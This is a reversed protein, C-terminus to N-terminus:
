DESLEEFLELFRQVIVPKTFGSELKSRGEGVCNAQLCTDQLMRQTAEACAKVDDIPFLLGNKGDEILWAPGESAAAVIPVGYAWAELVVNGLPEQRSPFVCLDATKFLAATDRRWGLFHVREAVELSLALAELEERLGGEGAILLHASPIEPLARILVDQAKNVHLRGLTLLVQDEETLGFEVRCDSVDGLADPLEGFNSILRMREVPWGLGNLHEIVSPTNGVLFDCSKYYKLPYYGGLRALNVCGSRRSLAHAARSMWALQVTPKFGEAIRSVAHRALWKRWGKAPIEIVECGAAELRARRQPHRCIVLLQNVGSEQFAIALKEFFTEAGGDGPALMVQLLRLNPSVNTMPM